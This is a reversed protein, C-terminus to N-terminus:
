KCGSVGAGHSDADFRFGPVKVLKKTMETLDVPKFESYGNEWKQMQFTRLMIPLSYALILRDGDMQRPLSSETFTRAM